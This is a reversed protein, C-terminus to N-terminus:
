FAAEPDLNGGQRDLGLQDAFEADLSSIFHALLRGTRAVDKLVLTEVPTHMYRTPISLLGTPIGERAVQIAWADTGSRGPIPEIQYPIEQKTAVDVLRQHILPHATPGFAIAPGGDMEITDMESLGPMDGFGMDIAVAVDPEIGYASTMAGKLGAEEQATAVAYVDWKHQLSSLVELCHVVAAVGARDDFAKGSVRGNELERFDRRLTILDGVRVLERLRGEGLGVDIFLEDWPVPKSRAAEPLVHPPRSGIIGPLAERGHVIVEQGLLTRRDFGGVQTFRLFSGELKLVMLGIEDMHGALMVKYCRGDRDAAGRKLAIASGLADEKTEDAWSAFQRRVIQRLQFEYGSVGSAESLEKLLSKIEM